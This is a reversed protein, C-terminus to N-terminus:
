QNKDLCLSLLLAFASTDNCIGICFLLIVIYPSLNSLLLIEVSVSSDNDQM